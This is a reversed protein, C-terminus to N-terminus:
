SWCERPVVVEKPVELQVTALVLKQDAVEPLVTCQEDTQLDTLVLDLLNNGRTPKKVREELGFTTCFNYM